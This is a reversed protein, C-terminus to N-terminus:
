VKGESETDVPTLLAFCSTSCVVFFFVCFLFVREFLESLSTGSPTSRQQDVETLCSSCRVIALRKSLSFCFFVITFGLPFLYNFFNLVVSFEVPKFAHFM